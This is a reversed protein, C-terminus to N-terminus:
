NREKGIHCDQIKGEICVCVCVCVCVCLYVCISPLVQCTTTCMQLGLMQFAFAPLNQITPWGSSYILKWALRHQM